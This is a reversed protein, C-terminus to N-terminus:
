PPLRRPNQTRFDGTSGPVFGWCPDLSPTPLQHNKTYKLTSNQLWAFLFIAFKNHPLTVIFCLKELKTISFPLNLKSFIHMKTFYRNLNRELIILFSYPGHGSQGGMLRGTTETKATSAENRSGRVGFGPSAASIM